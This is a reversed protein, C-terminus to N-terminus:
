HGALHRTVALTASRGALPHRAVVSAAVLTPCGVAGRLWPSASIAMKRGLGVEPRKTGGHSRSPPSAGAARARTRARSRAPQPGVAWGIGVDCAVEGVARATAVGVAGGVALGVARAVGVGIGGVGVSAGLGVAV